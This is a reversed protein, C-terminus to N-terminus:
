LGAGRHVPQTVAGSRPGGQSRPQHRARLRSRVAERCVHEPWQQDTWTVTGDALGTLVQDIGMAGLLALMRASRVQMMAYASRSRRRCRGPGEDLKETIRM